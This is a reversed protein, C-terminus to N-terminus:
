FIERFRPHERLYNKKWEQMEKINKEGLQLEVWRKGFVTQFPEKYREVRERFGAASRVELEIPIGLAREWSDRFKNLEQREKEPLELRYGRVAGKRQDLKYRPGLVFIIDADSPRSSGLGQNSAHRVGLQTGGFLMVAKLNKGFRRKLEPLVVKRAIMERSRSVNVKLCDQKKLFSHKGRKEIERIRRKMVETRKLGFVSGM